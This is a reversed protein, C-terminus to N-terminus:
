NNKKCGYKELVNEIRKLIRDKEVDDLLTSFGDLVQDSIKPNYVYRISYHDSSIAIVEEPSNNFYILENEFPQSKFDDIIQKFKPDSNQEISHEKFLKDWDCNKCNYNLNRISSTRENIGYCATLIFFLLISFIPISYKM